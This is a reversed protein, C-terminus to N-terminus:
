YKQLWKYLTSKPIKYKQIVETKSMDGNRIKLLLHDVIEKTYISKRFKPLELNKSKTLKNVVTASPAYLILHQSYIRFFDYELLKSMKLLTEVDISSSSYIDELELENIELNKTLRQQDFDINEIREKVLTGIHIEKFNM